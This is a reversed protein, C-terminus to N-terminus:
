NVVGETQVVTESDLNQIKLVKDARSSLDFNHSVNIVTIRGKLDVLTDMLDKRSDEDIQSLAEDLILLQPNQLIARAFGLRQRQGSSLGAGSEHIIRSLKDQDKGSFDLKVMELAKLAALDSIEEVSGFQLNDFLTGSVLPSEPGLYSINLDERSCTFYSSGMYDNDQNLKEDKPLIFEIQGENPILFGTILRLLTTKGIGSNGNILVFEGPRIEVRPILLSRKGTPWTYAVENLIVGAPLYSMDDKAKVKENSLNEIPILDPLSELKSSLKSVNPWEQTIVSNVRAIDSISQFMRLLLYLFPVIEAKNDLSQIGDSIIIFILTVIGMAQPLFTRFASFLYQKHRSASLQIIRSFMKQMRYTKLGHIQLFEINKVLTLFDSTSLVISDRVLYSFKLTERLLWKQAPVSVVVVLLVMFTLSASYLGLTILLSLAIILKGVYVFGNAIFNSAGVTISGFLAANNGIELNKKSSVSLALAKRVYSEFEILTQGACITNAAQLLARTIGMALLIVAEIEVDNLEGFIRTDSVQQILNASGLFRQLSIAFLVEVVFSLISVALSLFGFLLSQNEKALMLQSLILRAKSVRTVALLISKKLKYQMKLNKKVM